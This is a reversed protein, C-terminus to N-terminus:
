GCEYEQCGAVNSEVVAQVTASGGDYLTFSFSDCGDPVPYVNQLYSLPIREGYRFSRGVACWGQHYVDPGVTGGSQIRKNPPPVTVSVTVFKTRDPLRYSGSDGSGIVQANLAVNSRRTYKEIRGLSDRLPKLDVPPCPDPCNGGSPPLAPPRPRGGPLGPLNVTPAFITPNFSPNIGVTVGGLDFNVNIPGVNIEVSPNLDVNVTPRILTVPVTLSVNPSITVPATRRQDEPPIPTPTPLPNPGPARCTTGGDTRVVNVISTTFEKAGSFIVDSRTGGYVGNTCVGSVLSTQQTGNGPEARTLGFIPGTVGNRTATIPTSAPNSQTSRVTVNYTACACTEGDWPPPTTPVPPLDNPCIRDWIGRKLGALPDYPGSNSMFGPYRKYLDCAFGRAAAIGSRVLEPYNDIQPSNIVEWPILVTM